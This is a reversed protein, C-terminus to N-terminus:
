LVLMASSAIRTQPLQEEDADCDGHEGSEFTWVGANGTTMVELECTDTAWFDVRASEKWWLSGRCLDLRLSFCERIYGSSMLANFGSATFRQGSACDNIKDLTMTHFSGLVTGRIDLVRVTIHHEHIRRAKIRLEYVPESGAPTFRLLM